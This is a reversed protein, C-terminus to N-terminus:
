FYLPSNQLTLAAFYSTSFFIPFFFDTAKKQNREKHPSFNKPQWMATQTKIATKPKSTKRGWWIHLCCNGGVGQMSKASETHPRM